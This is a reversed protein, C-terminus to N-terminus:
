PTVIDVDVDHVYRTLVAVMKLQKKHSKEVETTGPVNGLPGLLATEIM